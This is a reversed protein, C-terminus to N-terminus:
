QPKQAINWYRRGWSRAARAQGSADHIAPIAQVDDFVTKLSMFTLAIAPGAKMHQSADPPM